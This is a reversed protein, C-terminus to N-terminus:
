YATKILQQLEAPSVRETTPMTSFLGSVLETSEMLEDLSVDLERLRSPLDLQSVIRRIARAARHAEEHAIIGEVSEGLARAVGVMKDPYAPILTDVVHPLLIAAVWSTPLQFRANITNALAGGVGQSTQAMAMATLLGAQSAQYRFGTDTPNRTGTRIAENLLTLVKELLLDSFFTSRRSTYGEIAALLTDVIAAVAYKSSLSQSFVSDIFVARTTVPSLPVAIPGKTMDDRLISQNKMMTHNRYSSPLEIYPLPKKPLTGTRLQEFNVEGSAINAVCRSVSLVRVGGLGVVVSARSAKALSALESITSTTSNPSLEDYIIVDIDAGRLIGSVKEIYRADHLVSESILLARSGFEKVTEPLDSLIETGFTINNPLRLSLGNM